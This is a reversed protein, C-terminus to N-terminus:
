ILNWLQDLNRKATSEQLGRALKPLKLKISSTPLYVESLNDSCCVNESALDQITKVLKLDYLYWISFIHGGWCIFTLEKAALQCTM